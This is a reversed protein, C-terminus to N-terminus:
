IHRAAVAWMEPQEKAKESADQARRREMLLTVLPHRAHTHSSFHCYADELSECPGVM